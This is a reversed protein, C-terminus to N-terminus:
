RPGGWRMRQMVEAILPALRSPDEGAALRKQLGAMEALARDIGQAVPATALLARTSALAEEVRPLHQPRSSEFESRAALLRREAEQLLGPDNAGMQRLTGALDLNLTAREVPESSGELLAEARSYAGWAASLLESGLAPALGSLINGRYRHVRSREVAATGAAEMAAAIERLESEASQMAEVFAKGRRAPWAANSARGAADM